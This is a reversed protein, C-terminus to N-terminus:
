QNYCGSPVKRTVQTGVVPPPPKAQDRYYSWLFFFSGATVTSYFNVNILHRSHVINIYM